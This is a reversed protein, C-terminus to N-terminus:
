DVWTASLKRHQNDNYPSIQISIHPTPIDLCIKDPWEIFCYAGTEFYYPYDMDIAEEENRLRYADMHYVLKESTLHYTNILSFTPSSVHDMVGLQKCIAKILTTKGAGLKGTFLWIKCSAAYEILEQATKDLNDVQTITSFPLHKHM